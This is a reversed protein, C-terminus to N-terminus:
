RRHLRSELRTRIVNTSRLYNEYKTCYDPLADLLNDIRSQCQIQLQEKYEITKYDSMM